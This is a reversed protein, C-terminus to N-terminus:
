LSMRSHIIRNCHNDTSSALASIELKIKRVLLDMSMAKGAYMRRCRERWIHSVAAGWLLRCASALPSSASAVSIIWSSSVSWDSQPPALFNALVRCVVTFTFHCGFFLHDREDAGNSCLHCRTDCVLGWSVLKVSTPIRDLFITWLIFANRPIIPLRWVISYWTVESPFPQIDRWVRTISYRTM